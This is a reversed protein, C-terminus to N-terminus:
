PLAPPPSGALRISLRRLQFFNGRIVQDCGLQPLSAWSWTGVSGALALAQHFQQVVAVLRPPTGRWVFASQARGPFAGPTRLVLMNWSSSLSQILSPLCSLSSAQGQLCTRLELGM